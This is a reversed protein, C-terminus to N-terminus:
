STKYDTLYSLAELKFYTIRVSIECAYKIRTGIPVNLFLKSSLFELLLQNLM